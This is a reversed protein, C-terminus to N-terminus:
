TLLLCNEKVLNKRSIERVTPWNGLMEWVATLNGLIELSGSAGFEEFWIHYFFVTQRLEKREKIQGGEDYYNVM